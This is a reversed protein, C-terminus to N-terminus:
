ISCTALGVFNGTARIKPVFRTAAPDFCVYLFAVDCVWLMCTRCSIRCLANKKVNM